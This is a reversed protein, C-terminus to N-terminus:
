GEWSMIQETNLSENEGIRFGKWTSKKEWDIWECFKWPLNKWEWILIIAKEVLQSCM